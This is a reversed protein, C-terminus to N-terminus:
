RGSLREMIQNHDQVRMNVRDFFISRAALIHEDGSYPKLISCDVVWRGEAYPNNSEMFFGEPKFQRLRYLLVNRPDDKLFKGYDFNVKIEAIVLGDSM